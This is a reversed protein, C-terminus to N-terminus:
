VSILKVTWNALESISIEADKPVGKGCVVQQSRDSQVCKIHAVHAYDTTPVNKISNKAARIPLEKIM